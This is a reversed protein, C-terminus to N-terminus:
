KLAKILETLSDFRHNIHESIAAMQQAVEPRKPYQDAVEKAHDTQAQALRAQRDELAKFRARSPEGLKVLLTTVAVLLVGAAILSSTVENTM